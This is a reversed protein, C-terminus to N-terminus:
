PRHGHAGRFWCGGCSIVQGRPLGRVDLRGLSAAEGGHLTAIGRAVDRRLQRLEDHVASTSRARSMTSLMLAALLAASLAAVGGLRLWRPDDALALVAAATIALLACLVLTVTQLSM